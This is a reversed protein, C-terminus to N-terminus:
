ARQALQPWMESTWVPTQRHQLTFGFAGFSLHTASAFEFEWRWYQRDFHVLQPVVPEREFDVVWDGFIDIQHRSEQSDISFQLGTVGRFALDAAAILYEYDGQM